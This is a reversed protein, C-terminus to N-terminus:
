LVELRDGEAVFGPEIVRLAAGLQQKQERVLTRLIRPDKPLEAQPQTIMGCRVMPAVVELLATGVSLKRGRLEQEPREGSEFDVLLNPRFRREDIRSDPLRRQLSVLTQTSVLHIEVTDFFTGRPSMYTALERLIEPGLDSLDPLPEDPELGFIARMAALDLPERRAYFAADKAPRRAVLTLPKGAVDSIRRSVDPDDSRLRSGDPFRIEVPPTADGEPEELYRAECRLLSPIQKAGRIEGLGDRLAYGRDGPIGIGGLISARAVREGGLSKVPFRWLAIVRAAM